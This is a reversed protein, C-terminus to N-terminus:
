DRACDVVASGQAQQRVPVWVIIGLALLLMAPIVLFAAHIGARDGLAGVAFPIVGCAIGSSLTALSAGRDVHGGSAAVVRSVGLPWNVALGLGVLFLCVLIGVPDSMFWALLLSVAAILIALRLLADIAYTEALRSGLFRGVVMGAAVVGIGAAAAAPEFGARDRLLDAGWVSVSVESATLLGLMGCTWWAQRTMPVGHSAPTGAEPAAGFVNPMRSRVVEGIVMGIAVIWVGFRWGLFTAAGAGIALPALFGTVAAVANAQTLAAPGAEGQYRLLFANIGTLAITMCCAAIALAPITVAPGLPVTFLAIGIAMGIMGYRITTSRGSRRVLRAALLAGLIGAFSFAAPHLGALARSTGQEDRLLALTAGYGMTFASLLSLQIVIMWTPRDRVPRRSDGALRSGATSM